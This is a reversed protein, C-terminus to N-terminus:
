TGCFTQHVLEQPTPADEFPEAGDQQQFPNELIGNLRRMPDYDGTQGAEIAQEVRHNRPIYIPNAANMLNQSELTSIGDETRTERWHSLWTNAASDQTFLDTFKDMYGDQDLRRLYSFFLTFDIKHSTLAQLTKELFTKNPRNLGLKNAFYSLFYQNFSIEFNSLEAEIGKVADDGGGWIPSLAEGLRMLNWHAMHPQRGWAYRGQQDISSFVKGPDFDDMFACPGYDITEGALQCNDTNMVGHIFGFKMWLAILKAQQKIIGAYLMRVPNDTKRAEPYHRDIVYEALVKLAATDNNAYFFQFTGVRIHSSAVRTFIAGPLATDRFVTEGTTVAALARTTPVGLAHMAESVLYERIVPGVASKGDGGRSYPTRGSGKLQIDFGSVEGLLLARGDGLRASWGGFQHGAYVMALPDAGDPMRRGSVMDLGAESNLFGPDIGLQQALANNAMIWAPAPAPDAPQRTYFQEPLAAFSNNFPIQNVQLERVDTKNVSFYANAYIIHM